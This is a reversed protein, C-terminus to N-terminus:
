TIKFEDDILDNNIKIDINRYKCDTKDIDVFKWFIDKEQLFRFLKIRTNRNCEILSVERNTNILAEIKIDLKVKLNLEM